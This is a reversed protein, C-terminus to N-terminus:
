LVPGNDPSFNTPPTVLLLLLRVVGNYEEEAIVGSQDEIWRCLSRRFAVLITVILSSPAPTIIDRLLRLHRLATSLMDPHPPYLDCLVSDFLALCHSPVPGNDGLDVHSFLLLTVQPPLRSDFENILLCGRIGACRLV